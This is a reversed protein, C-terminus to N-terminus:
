SAFQKDIGFGFKAGSLMGSGIQLAMNLGHNFGSGQYTTEAMQPIPGEAITGIASMDAQYAQGAIKNMNRGSQRIASQETLALRAESNGFQAATELAIQRDTSRGYTESAAAYGEAAMLQKILAQRQDSFGLFQEQIRAQETQWSANAAKFNEVMQAKVREVQRQYARQQYANMAKTKAISLTNQYAAAASQAIVQQSQANAGFAGMIGSLGASIGTAWFEMAM